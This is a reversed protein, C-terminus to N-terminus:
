IGKRYQKGGPVENLHQQAWAFFSETAERLTQIDEEKRKEEPMKM